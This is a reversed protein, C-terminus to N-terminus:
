QKDSNDADLFLGAGELVEVAGPLLGAEDNLKVTV